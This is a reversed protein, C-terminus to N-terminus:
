AGRQQGPRQGRPGQVEPTGIEADSDTLVFTVTTSITIITDNDNHDYDHVTIDNDNDNNQRRQPLPPGVDHQREEEDLRILFGDAAEQAWDQTSPIDEHGETAPM